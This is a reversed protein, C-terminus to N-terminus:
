SSLIKHADQHWIRADLYRTPSIQYGLRRYFDIASEQASLEIRVVGAEDRFEEVALDELASMIRAGVGRGRVSASVAVRGIHVLGPRDVLMRATGVAEGTHTLGLVHHTSDETDLGDLEEEETVGQEGIFVERRIGWASKMEQPTSVRVVTLKM